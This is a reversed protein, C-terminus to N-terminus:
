VCRCSLYTRLRHDTSLNRRKNKRSKRGEPAQVPQEDPQDPRQVFGAKIALTTVNRLLRGSRQTVVRAPM